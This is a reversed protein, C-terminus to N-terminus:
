VIQKLSGLPTPADASQTWTSPFRPTKWQRSPYLTQFLLNCCDIPKNKREEPKTLKVILPDDKDRKLMNCLMQTLDMPAMSKFPCGALNGAQIGSIYAPDIMKSCSIENYVKKPATSVINKFSQEKELEPEKERLHTEISTLPTGLARLYNPYIFRDNYKLHRQHNRLYQMCPPMPIDEIDSVTATTTTTTTNTNNVYQKRQQEEKSPLETLPVINFKRNLMQAAYQRTILREYILRLQRKYVVSPLYHSRMQNATLKVLLHQSDFRIQLDAALPLVEHLPVATNLNVNAEELLSAPISSFQYWMTLRWQFYTVEQTILWDIEDETLAHSRAYRIMIFLAWFSKNEDDGIFASMMTWLAIKTPIRGFRVNDHVCSTLFYLRSMAMREIWTWDKGLRDIEAVENTTNLEKLQNSHLTIDITSPLSPTQRYLQDDRKLWEAVVLRNIPTLAHLPFRPFSEPTCHRRYDVMSITGLFYIRGVEVHVECLCLVTVHTLVGFSQGKTQIRTYAEDVTSGKPPPYCPVPLIHPLDAPKRKPSMCAFLEEFALHYNIVQPLPLGYQYYLLEKTQSVTTCKLDLDNSRSAPEQRIM